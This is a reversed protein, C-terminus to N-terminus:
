YDLKLVDRMSFLGTDENMLFKAAVLAGRAFIDRNKAHHKITITDEESEFTLEHDGVIEGERISEIHYVEKPSVSKVCTALTKATGSPADKKHIHHAETMHVSYSKPTAQSLLEVVKFMINVGVSMNSSFVIAITEAAKAIEKEQTESFGTTGIVMNIGHSKCYRLNEMTGDPSTFDIMVDCGEMSTHSTSIPIGNMSGNGDVCGEKELLTSIEFFGEMIALAVIRKGMRGQCGTVALNNM